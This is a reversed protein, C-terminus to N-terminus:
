GVRNMFSQVIVDRLKFFGNPILTLFVYILIRLEVLLFLIKMFEIVLLALAVIYGKMQENKDKMLATKLEKGELNTGIQIRTSGSIDQLNVTNGFIQKKILNSSSINSTIGLPLTQQINVQSTSACVFSNNFTRYGRGTDCDLGSEVIDGFTSIANAVNSLIILLLFIGFLLIIKRKM